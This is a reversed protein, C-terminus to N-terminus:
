FWLSDMGKKIHESYWSVHSLSFIDINPLHCTFFHYSTLVFANLHISIEIIIALAFLYRNDLISLVLVILPKFKLNRKLSKSKM